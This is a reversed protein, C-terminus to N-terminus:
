GVAQQWAGAAKKARMAVVSESPGRCNHPKTPDVAWDCEPCVIEGREALIEARTVPDRPLPQWFRAVGGDRNYESISEMWWGQCDNWFLANRIAWKEGPLKSDDFLDDPLTDIPYSKGPEFQM